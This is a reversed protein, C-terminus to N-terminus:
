LSKSLLMDDAPRCFNLAQRCAENPPRFTLIHAKSSEPAFTPGVLRKKLFRSRAPFLVAGNCESPGFYSSLMYPNDPISVPCFRVRARLDLCSPARSQSNKCVAESHFKTLKLADPADLRDFTMFPVKEDSAELASFVPESSQIYM